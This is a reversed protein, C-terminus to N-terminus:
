SHKKWEPFTKGYLSFTADEGKKIQIKKRKCKILSKIKKSGHFLMVLWELCMNLIHKLNVNQFIMSTIQETEAIHQDKVVQFKSGSKM